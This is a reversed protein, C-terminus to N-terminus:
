PAEFNPNSPNNGHQGNGGAFAANLGALWGPVGYRTAPRVMYESSPNYSEAPVGTSPRYVYSITECQQGSEGRDCVEVTVLQTASAAVTAFTIAAILTKKM